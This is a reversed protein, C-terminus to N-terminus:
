KAFWAMDISGEPPPLGYIRYLEASWTVRNAIPNWEYHGIHAVGQAEELRAKSEQLGHSLAEREEDASKRETIDTVVGVYELKGDNDRGAHAVARVYKIASEPLLIRHEIDLDMGNQIARGSIQQLRDRDEPHVRDFVLDLTPNVPRAFSLIKYTEDSWVLEGSHM